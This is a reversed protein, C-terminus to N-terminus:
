ADLGAKQRAAMVTRLSRVGDHGTALWEQHSELRVSSIFHRLEDIYNEDFSDKAVMIVHPPEGKKKSSVLRTILNVYVTLKEGEIWFFRQEPSTYYDGQIFVRDSVAPFKMAIFADKSDHGFEDMPATCEIVEGEGLLFHALDIEHSLWNRIVGDRMYPAKTSLQNVSFSACVIDGLEGAMIMRKVKQVCAHFRLNFGTAVILNAEDAFLLINKVIEPDDYGIPKEVLVHKKAALSDHLDQVHCETPSAVIIANACNIVFGRTELTSFKPEYVFVEHGLSEANQYHRQGISGDGLIGIRMNTNEGAM